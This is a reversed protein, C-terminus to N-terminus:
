SRRDQETRSVLGCTTGTPPSCPALLCDPPLVLFALSPPSALCAEGGKGEMCLKMGM